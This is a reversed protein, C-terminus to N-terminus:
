ADPMASRIGDRWECFRAYEARADAVAQEDLSRAYRTQKVVWCWFSYDKATSPLEMVASSHETDDYISVRITLTGDLALQSQHPRYFITEPM